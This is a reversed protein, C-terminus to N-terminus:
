GEQGCGHCDSTNKSTRYIEIKLLTNSDYMIYGPWILNKRKTIPM